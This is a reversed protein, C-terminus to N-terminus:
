KWIYWLTILFKTPWDPDEQQGSINHHLWISLRANSKAANVGHSQVAQWTETTNPCYRLLHDLDEVETSCIACKPSNAM